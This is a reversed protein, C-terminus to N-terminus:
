RRSVTGPDDIPARGPQRVSLATRVPAPAPLVRAAPPRRHRAAGLRRVEPGPRGPDLRAEPDRGGLRGRRPGALRRGVLPRGRDRAPEPGRQDGGSRVLDAPGFRAHVARYGGPGFAIIVHPFVSAYTRVHAKFEDVTQGYPIWQMMVGGPNLRAKAAQYFELSSIVSVGATEIPPPPDVVITDYHDSTLEVHNRGDAIIIKGKPNAEVSTADQYFVGFMDPVSPVLEVVTSTYGANLAARWASGMGFAITLNTTANPRLILPLVPMLKTDVTLITMSTGTVWLQPIGHISGAQVSAISDEASKDITGGAAEVRVINPDVFSGGALAVVLVVTM